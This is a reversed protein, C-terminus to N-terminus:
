TMHFIFGCIAIARVVNDGLLQQVECVVKLKEGSATKGEVILSNYINPMKGPPFSIDMVPGIIQVITGINSNSVTTM